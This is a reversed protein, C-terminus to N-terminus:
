YAHCIEIIVKFEGLSKHVNKNAEEHKGLQSSLASFQLYSIALKLKIGAIRSLREYESSSKDKILENKLLKEYDDNQISLNLIL